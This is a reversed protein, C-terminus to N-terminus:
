NLEINVSTNDFIILKALIESLAIFILSLSKEQM